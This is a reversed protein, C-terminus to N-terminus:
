LEKKTTVEIAERMWEEIVEAGCRHLSHKQKQKVQNLQNLCYFVGESANFLHEAFHLAREGRNTSKTQAFVLLDYGFYELHLQKVSDVHFNLWNTLYFHRTADAADRPKYIM